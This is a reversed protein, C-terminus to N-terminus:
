CSGPGFSRSKFIRSLFTRRFFLLSSYLRLGADRFISFVCSPIFIASLIVAHSGSVALIHYTGTMRFDERVESPLTSKIGTVLGYSLSAAPTGVYRDFKERLYDMLRYYTKRLPVSDASFFATTPTEVPAANSLIELDAPRRLRVKFAVDKEILYSRYSGPDTKLIPVIEGKLRVADGVKLDPLKQKSEVHVRYGASSKQNAVDEVLAEFHFLRGQFGPIDIVRFVSPKGSEALYRELDKQRDVYGVQFLFFASAFAAVLSSLRIWKRSSFMGWFGSVALIAGLVIKIILSDPIWKGWMAMAFAGLTLGGCISLLFM